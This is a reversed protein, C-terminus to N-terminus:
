HFVPMADFLTHHFSLNGCDDREGIRWTPTAVEQRGIITVPEGREGGTRRGGFLWHRSNHTLAHLSFCFKFSNHGNISTMCDLRLHAIHPLM